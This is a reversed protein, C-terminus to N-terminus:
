AQLLSVNAQQLILRACIVDGDYYDAEIADSVGLGGRFPPRTAEILGRGTDTTDKSCDLVESLM